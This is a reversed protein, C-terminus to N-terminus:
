NRKTPRGIPNTIESTGQHSFTRYIIEGAPEGIRRIQRIQWEFTADTITGALVGTIPNRFIAVVAENAIKLSIRAAKETGDISPNRVIERVDITLSVVSGLGPIRLSVFLAEGFLDFGHRNIQDKIVEELIEDIARVLANRALSISWNWATDVWDLGTPDIFRIPNNSSYLYKNLSQLENLSEGAPDRTLFRGLTPAYYRARFFTLGNLDRIVGYQGIYQFPNQLNEVSRTVNGFPDYTYSSVVRRADDTMAITSGIPDFHYYSHRGDPTVRYALGLGYVYYSSIVGNGDTECLVQSLDHNTDVVYRTTTGAEIKALRVGQGNYFYQSTGGVSKLRNEFDYTYTTIQVAETKSTMNGNADFTFTTSGAAQIRNAHDYTNNETASLLRNALPQTLDLGVRNGNRDLTFRFSSIGSDAKTMLRGASDYTLTTTIGNPYNVKTLLNTTDYEYSTTKNAWDTLFILRNNADYQYNVQKGDPYTLRTINGNADYQYSINKGFPDTYNMLRNLEDYAYSSTGLSDIMQTINGNPDYAMQVTSNDPYTITVLRNNDDYSYRITQGKADTQTVRNGVADYTYSYTNDLADKASLLRNLRDYAFTSTRNNPDTQTIRNRNNDYTYRASGGASDNVQTLNGVADYTFRTSNGRPDTEKTMRGTADYERQIKNGLSDEIQTVRSMADYTFRTTQNKADIVQTRNGNADYTYSTRNGLPDTATLLRGENDYTFTTLSGRKDRTSVRRDLNDYTHQIFTGKADTERILLNNEDYSYTTLNGRADRVSTRNNNADYANTTVNGLPDTITLLNDNADYTYRTTKGRADTMTIRRGVGDYTYTTTNNLADKVSTLNGQADYTRVTVNGNADTLNLPQGFQDYTTSSSKSLADTLTILNGNADYSMQTRSGIEDTIQTPNNRTDYAAQRSNLSPDTRSIINGNSDYIFNSYNNNLDSIQARNNLEDYLVNLHNTNRDVTRGMNFNTDHLYKTERNLPDFVSTSGDANYVFRWQNGRGNTQTSVRNNSDYTNVLLNNQRGDIIRTLRNNSDYQYTNFNNRADQFSTLNSGNDYSFRLTRGIPDTVTSLLSGSYTFNFTRGVTDTVHSLNNGSYSLSIQNNNRDEIRTLRGSSDFQYKKQDPKKLAWTGDGNRVLTDYYGPYSPKFSDTGSQVLYELVKGDSYHVLARGPTIDSLYINFTHSWGNGLPGLTNDQSNYSRAFEIDIGRGPVRLDTAEYNYNGTATNVPDANRASNAPVSDNTGGRGTQTGFGLANGQQLVVRIKVYFQVGFRVGAANQLQWYSYYTGPSPARMSISVDVVQNPSTSPVPVSSAGTASLNLSPNGNSPASIFVMSYNTWATTGVNKLRWTKVFNSGATLQTNDPITVDAIFTMADTGSPQTATYEATTSAQKAADDTLSFRWQGTPDSSQSTVIFSVSGNSDIGYRGGGSQSGNPRTVTLNASSNRTFNSGSFRFSTGLPGSTPSATLIPQASPSTSVTFATSRNSIGGVTQVQVQYSGSGLNVNSVSLTTSSSVIVGAQPHEFCTSTGNVCFFVRTGNSIFGTGNLLGSFNQQHMPASHWTFGSLTPSGLGTVSFSAWNSSQGSPNNVRVLWTGVDNGNNIQYSIQSSSIFTLRSPTSPLNTGTPPDFTLTAGSVFNSGNITMTQLSNSPPYSNPSINNISPAQAAATVTFPFVNSGQGNPNIVQATWNAASTGVTILIRLQTSSIFTVQSGQLDTQGGPFTVRVKLGSGSVFGTGFINVPQDTSSGPVPNPSLSSITPAASSPTVSFSAWNSSQGNPNNVRVLWTGVDNDNNIQYSIQSSSIFTLRSATSPLNSGTPPDFTLTAGNQFNSGNITIPQLNSSAPISNPSINTIAPVAATVTFPFINSGQGNPNIVQATWNAASTGVNILITLHTSSAFHVQTGQLDTQGGPFTVRVKLGSGNVFGSGFISVGQDTSSGPVPNPFMSSIVPAPTVTFSAWNSSQGNPNNVRVLWTGVDNGNNIQYSIQSSSIFTLRSANSPINSGTPPDFTLTAGNQFNSGNITIPQLGNSAPISNPSINNISPAQAAATVSFNFVNSMEGNPNIVRATWNAASTGVTILIRLQTSSIFTVQTGQLDTQGGPFTVRVKLGSGSVFGSGFISVPQDSASGPVPNPSMSNIVPAGKAEPSGAGIFLLTCALSLLFTAPSKM